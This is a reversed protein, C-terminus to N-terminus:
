HLISAKEPDGVLNGALGEVVKLVATIGAVAASQLVSIQTINNVDFWNSAVLVGLFTHVFTMIVRKLLDSLYANSFQFDRM